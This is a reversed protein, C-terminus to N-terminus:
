PAAAGITATVLLVMTPVLLFAYGWGDNAIVAEGPRVMWLVVGMVWGLMAAFTAARGVISAVAVLAAAAATALVLGWPLPVSGLRWIARAVWTACVSVVVGGLVLAYPWPTSWGRM